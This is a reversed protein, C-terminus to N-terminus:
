VALKCNTGQPNIHRRYIEGREELIETHHHPRRFDIHHSSSGRGRGRWSSWRGRIGGIPKSISVSGGAPSQDFSSESRDSYNRNSPHPSYDSPGRREYKETPKRSDAWKPTSENWDKRESYENAGGGGGGGISGRVNESRKHDWDRSSSQHDSPRDYLDKGSSSEEHWERRYSSSSHPYDTPERRNHSDYKEYSRDHERPEKEHRRHDFSDSREGGFSRSSYPADKETSREQAAALAMAREAPRPLLRQSKQERLREQADREKALRERERQREQCRMLAERREKERLAESREKERDSEIRRSLSHNRSRDSPSRRLLPSRDRKPTRSRAMKPSRSRMHM